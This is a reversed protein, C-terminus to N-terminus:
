INLVKITWKLKFKNDKIYINPVITAEILDTNKIEFVSTELNNKYCKTIIKNYNEKIKTILKSNYNEFEMIDSTFDYTIQDKICQINYLYKEFERIFELFDGDSMDLKIIHTVIEKGRYVYSNRELGFPCKLKPTNISFEKNDKNLIKVINKNVTKLMIKRIENNLEYKNM